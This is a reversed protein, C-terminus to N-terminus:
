FKEATKSDYNMFLNTWINRSLRMIVAIFCVLTVVIAAFNIKLFCELFLHTIIFATFSFAIGVGYSVYVSGYFFSPEIKYNTACYRCRKHM